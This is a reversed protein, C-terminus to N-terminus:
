LLAEYSGRISRAPKSLARNTTKAGFPGSLDAWPLARPVRFVAFFSPFLGSPACYGVPSTDGKCPETSPQVVALGPTARPEKTAAGEPRVFYLAVGFRV